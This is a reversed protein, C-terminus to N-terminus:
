NAKQYQIFTAAGIMGEAVRGNFSTLMWTDSPMSQNVGNYQRPQYDQVNFHVWNQAVQYTGSDLTQLAGLVHHRQYTGNPYFIVQGRISLQGTREIGDWTGILSAATLAQQAEAKPCPWIAGATLTSLAVGGLMFGLQRKSVLTRDAADESM